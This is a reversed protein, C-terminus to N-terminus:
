IKFSQVILEPFTLHLMTIWRSDKVHLVQENHSFAVLCWDKHKTGLHLECWANLDKFPQSYSQGCKFIIHHDFNKLYRAIDPNLGVHHDAVTLYNKKTSTM